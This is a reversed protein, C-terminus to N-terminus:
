NMLEVTVSGRVSELVTLFGALDPNMRSMYLTWEQMIEGILNDFGRAYQFDSALPFRDWLYKLYDVSYIQVYVNGLNDVSAVIEISRYLEGTDILSYKRILRKFRDTLKQNINSSANFM